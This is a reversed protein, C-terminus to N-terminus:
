KFLQIGTQTAEEVQGIAKMIATRCLFGDVLCGDAGVVVDASLVEGSTLTVSPREPDPKVSAVRATVFKAGHEKASDALM